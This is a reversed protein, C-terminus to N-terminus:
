RLGLLGDSYEAFQACPVAICAVVTIKAYILHTTFPKSINELFKMIYLLLQLKWVPSFQDGFTCSFYVINYFICCFYLFFALSVISLQSYM